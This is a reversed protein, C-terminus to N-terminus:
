CGLKAHRLSTTLLPTLDYVDSPVPIGPQTQHGYDFLNLAMSFQFRYGSACEGFSFSLRRVLGGKDVWVDLPMQHSGLASELSAVSRRVAGRQAPAVLNPYRDLDVIAHYHTTPVGRITMGGSRTDSSSVARLYDVFQAPDTATPLSSVGIAGIARSMDIKIWHRGGTLQVGNPLSAAGMYVTLGSILESIDLRRAGTFVATTLSGSRSAVDFAGTLRELITGSVPNAITVIGAIRYGAQKSTVDAARSVAGNTLSSSGCGAAALALGILLTARKM